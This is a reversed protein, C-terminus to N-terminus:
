GFYNDGFITRQNVLVVVSLYFIRVGPNLVKYSCDLLSKILLHIFNFTLIIKKKVKQWKRLHGQIILMEGFIETRLLDESALMIAFVRFDYEAM